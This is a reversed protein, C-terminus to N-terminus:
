RKPMLKEITSANQTAWEELAAAPDVELIRKIRNRSEAPLNGMAQEFEQECRTPRQKLFEAEEEGLLDTITGVVFTDLSTFQQYMSGDM